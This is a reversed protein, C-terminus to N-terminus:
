MATRRQLVEAVDSVLYRGDMNELDLLYEKKVKYADVRGLADALQRATIFGRNGSAGKLAKIIDQKKM